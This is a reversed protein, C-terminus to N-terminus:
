SGGLVIAGLQRGVVSDQVELIGPGPAFSIRQSRSHERTPEVHELREAAGGQDGLLPEHRRGVADVGVSLAVAVAGLGVYRRLLAAPDARVAAM